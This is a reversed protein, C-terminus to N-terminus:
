SHRALSRDRLFGSTVAKPPSEHGNLVTSQTKNNLWNKIWNAAKDIISHNNLKALLRRHPVKDFAKSFDVYTIDIGNGADLNKTVFNSLHLLNTTCSKGRRFGHQNDKIINQSELHRQIQPLILRELFKGIQSTLSIPRYNAPNAKDGKKFIPIIKATKWDDPVYGEDISNKYLTPLYKLQM